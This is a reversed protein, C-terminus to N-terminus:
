LSYCPTYADVWGWAPAASNIDNRTPYLASRHAVTKPPNRTGNEDQTPKAPIRIRNGDGEMFRYYESSRM